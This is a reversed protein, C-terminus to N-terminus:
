MTRTQLNDDLEISKKVHSPNVFVYRIDHATLHAALNMWYHGTPEFGVLIESKEHKNKLALLQEYFITFGEASQKIPFSKHLVRGRDDVACAYHKRKAIDIGIVLTKESVQNIKHNTSNNM